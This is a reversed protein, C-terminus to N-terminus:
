ATKICPYTGEAMAGAVKVYGDWLKFLRLGIDWGLKRYSEWQAEDFFQDGTSQQPFSPHAAAYLKVDLSAFQTLTPKIIILLAQRALKDDEGKNLHYRVRAVVACREGRKEPDSVQELTGFYPGAEAEPTNLMAVFQSIGKEDFFEIEAGFDIRARRVLNQLDNFRYDPDNTNDSCVILAARRRLLEYVALSEFHGGDSLNWLLGRQGRFRGSLEQWVLHFTKFVRFVRDHLWAREDPKMMIPASKWWCGLRANVVWALMSFGLSSLRGLGTSVAAGSIATWAALPLRECCLNPRGKSKDDGSTGPAEARGDPGELPEIKEGPTAEAWPYYDTNVNIGGPGVTLAVGKRDERILNSTNSLRDNLTACILHLPGASRHNFYSELGVEDDPHWEAEFLKRAKKKEDRAVSDDKEEGSVAKCYEKLRRFNAAGLFTRRLRARYFRHFSSNNLFGLNQHVLCALALWAVILGALFTWHSRRLAVQAGPLGPSWVVWQVFAALLAAIATLALGAAALAILKQLRVVRKKWKSAEGLVKTGFQRALALVVAVAGGTGIAAVKGAGPKRLLAVFVTQGISDVLGCALLILLLWLVITLWQTLKSRIYSAEAAPIWVKFQQRWRAIRPRRAPEAGAAQDQAQMRWIPILIGQIFLVVLGLYAGYGLLYLVPNTRHAFVWLPVCLAVSVILLVAMSLEIARREARLATQDRQYVPWYALVLPGVATLAVLPVLWLIPSSWWSFSPSRVGPGWDLGNLAPAIKGGFVMGLGHLILRMGYIGVVVGLLALGLIYYVGILSRMYFAAFYLLDRAGSPTLYRGNERLWRLPHFIDGSIGDISIHTTTLHPGDTLLRETREAAELPDELKNTSGPPNTSSLQGTSGPPDPLRFDQCRPLFLSGLFAGTYGGGSVTSLYDIQPFLKEAALAQALGLSFIASRIGGGSFALGVQLNPPLPAPTPYRKGWLGRRKRILDRELEPDFTNNGDM